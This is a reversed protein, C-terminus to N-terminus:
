SQQLFLKMLVQGPAVQDGCASHGTEDVVEFGCHLYLQRASSQRTAVTLHVENLGTLGRAHELLAQLLKRGIGRGRYGNDVFMGWVCGWEPKKRYLGATGVLDAADFAGFVCSMDGGTRLREAHFALPKSRHEDATERFAHPESELALLRLRAFEEADEERLRRIHV